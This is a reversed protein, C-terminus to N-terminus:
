DPLRLITIQFHLIYLKLILRICNADSCTTPRSHIFCMPQTVPMNDELTESVTMKESFLWMNLFTFMVIIIYVYIVNFNQCNLIMKLIMRGKIIGDRRVM